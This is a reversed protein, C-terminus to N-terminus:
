QALDDQNKVVGGAGNEGQAGEPSTSSTVGDAEHVNEIDSNTGTVAQEIDSRRDHDDQPASDPHPDPNTM